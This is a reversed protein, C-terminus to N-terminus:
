SGETFPAGITYLLLALSALTFMAYAARRWTIALTM